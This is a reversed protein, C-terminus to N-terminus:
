AGLRYYELGVELCASADLVAFPDVVYQGRMRKKIEALSVNSFEKWPTMILLVDADQAAELPCACAQVNPFELSNLRVAPDYARLRYRSLARILAVSPSNKTSHTEPKYTVGWIALQVDNPRSLLGERGLLRLVWDKRYSSNQRWAGVIRADTGNEAALNQVTVLDRELNGGGIGLGPNLYAHPGIRRDLRLAPVIELWDAGIKECIEALTNATSVSSVLFCNIAIKCLEASEYRMPLVPCDFAALYRRYVEPLGSAVDACGVVFREPRIAREVANGFVLTEVQYFLRLTPPLRLALRRCYGPPVQSMLVLVAGPAATTTVRDILAELLALNSNNAEDTPVDLTIFILPCDALSAVDARYRIRGGYAGFADELGPESVPFRGAALEETVGPREDFALVSFGHAAAAMSSVIGLHTLGAFGITSTESM